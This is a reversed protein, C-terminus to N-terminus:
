VIAAGKLASCKRLSRAGGASGSSSQHPWDMILTPVILFCHAARLGSGNIM